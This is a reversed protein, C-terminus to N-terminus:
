QSRSRALKRAIVVRRAVEDVAIDLLAPGQLCGEDIVLAFECVARKLLVRQGKGVREFAVTDLALLTQREDHEIGDDFNGREASGSQRLRRHAQSAALNRARKLQM